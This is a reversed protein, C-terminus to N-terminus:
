EFSLLEEPDIAKGRQWIQLEVWRQDADAEAGAHGVVSGPKLVNGQEVIANSLHSFVAVYDTANQLVVQYGQGVILSVSIVTGAFPALVPLERNLLIRIGSNVQSAESPRQVEGRVPTIFAVQKNAPSEHMAEIGFREKAEYGSRFDTELKSAALLGENFAVITSDYSRITDGKPQDRLISMLNALYAARLNNEQVLSDIRLSYTMAEARKNRDLYGPLYIRLPTLVVLVLLLSATTLVSLVYLYIRTRQKRNM